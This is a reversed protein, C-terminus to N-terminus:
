NSISYHHCLADFVPGKITQTATNKQLLDSYNVFVTYISVLEPWARFKTSLQRKLHCTEILYGSDNTNTFSAQTVSTGSLAFGTHLQTANTKGVLCDHFLNETMNM